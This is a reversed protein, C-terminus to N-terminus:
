SHLNESSLPLKLDELLCVALWQLHSIKSVLLLDVPHDEVPDAFAKLLNLLQHADSLFEKLTSLQENNFKVSNLESESKIQSTCLTLYERLYTKKTAVTTLQNICEIYYNLLNQLKLRSSLNPIDVVIANVTGKRQSLSCNNQIKLDRSLTDRM